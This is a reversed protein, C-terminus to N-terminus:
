ENTELKKLKPLKLKPLEPTSNVKKLKPLTLQTQQAITPVYQELLENIKIKMANFSFETRSKYGQRRGKEQYTKYNEFVDKFYYHIEAPNPTFWGSEPILMNKIVASPHIQKIEGSLLTTHEKDLFDIHGSWNTTIIPKNTLSFELLPRGFGEGKTFCAMAKVKPHNYLQNMEEDSLEGHLLYVSPLRNAKVTKRLANIKFMIERRDMYSTGAQSTKLILAPTKKKNKFTEYFSKILLGVNKRDEGFDGQMWHGVFLYCFDEKIQSLNLSKSGKELPCYKKIDVGEFLVEVPKEIRIQGIVQKTNDDVKNYATTTLVTKSHVSSALTLDMRNCGELWSIDCATTEIAATVGINYKGIPQFENPVTIQMWIDPQQTLQNNPLIYEKLHTFEEHDDLFGFPCSGWRQSLIKVDYKDLEVIAKVLDRARAGYGSYTDLPCSIVFTNKM